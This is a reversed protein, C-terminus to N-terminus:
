KAKVPTTVKPWKPGGSEDHDFRYTASKAPAALVFLQTADGGSLIEDRGARALFGAGKSRAAIARACGARILADIMRAPTAFTAAREAVVLDGRATVGVAIALDPPLAQPKGELLVAPAQLAFPANASNEGPVIISARGTLDIVLTAEDKSLPIRVVGATVLGLPAGGSSSGLKISALVRSAADAGLANGDLSAAPEADGAVVSLRVRSGDIFTTRVGEETAVLVTPLWTPPPQVGQDASFAPGKGLQPDRLTAYFFEKPSPQSTYRKKTVGMNPALPEADGKKYKEDEFSMFVFGVHLVNMDLHMGYDCGARNMAEALDIPELDNGWLYLFDGAATRCIGSRKARQQGWKGGGLIGGWKPRKRPNIVGDDVLPDLNQRLSRVDPPTKMEPGWSGFGLRGDDHMLITAVDKLPPLFERRRISMGWAGQDFRFGGNFAAVVKTAVEPERPLMGKNRPWKGATKEDPPFPGEVGVAMDLDIQRADIAVVQVKALRKPDPHVWTTYFTKPAGPIEHMWSRDFAIWEGEPTTEPIASKPKPATNPVIAIAAPPWPHTDLTAVSKASTKEHSKAPAKGASTNTSTGSDNSANKTGGANSANAIANPSPSAPACAATTALLLALSLKPRPSFPALPAIPSGIM